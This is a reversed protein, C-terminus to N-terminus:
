QPISLSPQQCLATRFIRKFSCFFFFFFQFLATKNWHQLRLGLIFPAINASSFISRGTLRCTHGSPSLTHGGAVTVVQRLDTGRPPPAQASDRPASSGFVTGEARPCSRHPEAGGPVRPPLAPMSPSMAPPTPTLRATNSSM